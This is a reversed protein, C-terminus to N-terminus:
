GTPKVMIGFADTTEQFTSGSYFRIAAYLGDLSYPLATLDSAGTTWIVVGDTGSTGDFGVNTSSLLVHAPDGKWVQLKMSFTAINKVTTTGSSYVTLTYPVALDGSANNYVVITSPSVYCTSVLSNALSSM